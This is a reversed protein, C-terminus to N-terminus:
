KEGGGRASRCPGAEIGGHARWPQFPALPTAQGRILPTTLRDSPQTRRVADVATSWSCHEDGSSNSIPSWADKIQSFFPILQVGSRRVLRIWAADPSGVLMPLARRKRGSSPSSRTQRATPRTAPALYFFRETADFLMASIAGVRRRNQCSSSRSTGAARRRTRRSSWNSYGFKKKGFYISAICVLSLILMPPPSTGAVWLSSGAVFPSL